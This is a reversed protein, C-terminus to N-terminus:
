KSAVESTITSEMYGTATLPHYQNIGHRDREFCTFDALIKFNGTEIENQMIGTLKLGMALLIKDANNGRQISDMAVKGSIEKFKEVSPGIFKRMPIKSTGYEQWLAVQAVYQGGADYKGLFGNKGTLLPYVSSPFWGVKVKKNSLENFLKEYVELKSTAM